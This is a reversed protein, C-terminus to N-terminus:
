ELVASLQEPKVPKSVYDDMGAAICKARDGELAHATMAVIPTHKAEGERRRIEATAEYGDMEPMQCDMLVLDYPIRGLAELAERGNAVADARYGLKELQRVAVKQNVVNDEALLILKQSTMKIEKLSHRTLLKAPVQSSSLDLGSTLSAQSVVNSLCDFLQSQRVPKTLYAAIGAERATMSHGRQGYSTLLVLRVAAINPDSKITRALEFGDMGPMMLDLIALDYATGQAAAARLLELARVGADAEEHIMGWSSLQHSLIKRNTANDDVILARLHDLRPLDTQVMAAEATQKNFRATCWFTSGKGEVSSVGIQGGMLEVLQKSIALGLGTGGYKRTMSGDAQTFAQFLNRQAVDSIGIGTDSVAFRIVVDADTESEKEARLIVEGHETFKLANGILNTLVQRLRGPDGRLRTPVDSHILSALEIQKFHAREALLEVTGEIANSLDFDLTEFQLKGAEIKSFDLIDGILTLLSDGSTRITEAFERQDASLETDLLLGTMGIVGNMPTRIEHSMNALFESKASNAVDAQEKALRLDREVQKRIDNETKLTGNVLMMRIVVLLFMVISSLAIALGDIVQGRVAQELLLIPGILAAITLGSILLPNLRPQQPPLPHAMDVVSPHLAAAGVLIYAILSIMELLRQVILDPFLTLQNVIAWGIDAGLFCLLSGLLLRFAPNRKGGGLLLRVMLALVIVDGIPYAIVDMRALLSLTPDSALPRIVCVWSLLALGTTITSTDVLPTKDRRTTMRRILLAMGTILCPYLGLWFIDALTPSRTTSVGFVRPLIWAVLIGSANLFVGGAFLYWEATGSPRRCRVSVIVAAAAAWGLAVQWLDHQWTNAPVFFFAGAAVAMVGLYRWFPKM